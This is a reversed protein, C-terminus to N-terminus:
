EGKELKEDQKCFEKNDDLVGVVQIGEVFYRQTDLHMIFTSLDKETECLTKRIMKDVSDVVTVIYNSRM